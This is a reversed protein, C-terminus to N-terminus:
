DLWNLLQKENIPAKKGREVKDFIEKNCLFVPGITWVKKGMAKKYYKVYELELEIFSNVVVGYSKSDGERFKDTLLRFYTKDDDVWDEQLQAKTIEIRNPLGPMVFHESEYKNGEHPRHRIINLICLLSFSCTGHFVIRPIHLKHAIECTYPLQFDSIICTPTPQLGQLVQEIPNELLELAQFLKMASEGSTVADMNECGEALGVEEYPFCLQILQIPLGSKTVRDIVSTFRTANLSTTIVTAVVGREAFLRAMDIMPIMHGQATFPIFIFHQKSDQSEM